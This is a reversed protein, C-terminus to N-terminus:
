AASWTFLSADTVTNNGYKKADALYAAVGPIATDTTFAAQSDVLIGNASSGLATILAQPLIVSLTGIKGTYGAQKLGAVM